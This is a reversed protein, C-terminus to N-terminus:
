SPNNGSPVASVAGVRLGRGSSKGSRDAFGRWEVFAGGLVGYDFGLAARARADALDHGADVGLRM